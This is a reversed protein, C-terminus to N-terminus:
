RLVEEIPVAMVVTTRIPHTLGLSPLRLLLRMPAKEEGARAVVWEAARPAAALTVTVRRGRDSLEIRTVEGVTVRQASLERGDRSLLKPPANAATQAILFWADQNAPLGFVELARAFAVAGAAKVPQPSEGLTVTAGGVTVAYRFAPTGRADFFYGLWRLDGSSRSPQGNWDAAAGRASFAWPFGAPSQWFRKGLPQSNAGGRGAWAGATNLFDGWWAYALRANEADFAFHLHDPYGIALARAGADPLFTRLVVPREKVQVIYSGEEPFGDPSPAARGLSLYNWILAIQADPNGGAVSQIPSVGGAFFQPMRTGPAIRQPDHMWRVFWDRRIREQARTLDPGRAGYGKHPGFDHCQICKFGGQAGGGVLQRGLEIHEPQFVAEAEGAEWAEGDAAVFADHLAGVNQAGFQPMRLTMWPRARANRTLAAAIADPKLKGGIGTLPPPSIAEVDSGEEEGTAVGSLRSLVAFNEQSLGGRGHRSHCDLCRFRELALMLEHTPAPAGAGDAAALFARIDARQAETLAFRPAPAAPRAALCGRDAKQPDRIADFAPARLRSPVSKRAQTLSHCNLCGMTELLERGQELAAEDAPPLPQASAPIRSQCLYQALSVADEDNLAMAPMRATPDSAHPNRLYQALREWSWKAGMGALPVRGRAVGQEDGVGHCLFCGLSNFLSHGREIRQPPSIDQNVNFKPGPGGKLSALFQAIAARQQAAADDGGFMAPMLAGQRIQQPDALWAAFWDAHVRSGIHTLDPAKRSALRAALKNEGAEHCSVCNFEEVWFQGRAVAEHQALAPPRQAPVHSLFRAPLPEALFGPGEWWVQARAPGNVLPATRFEARLPHTGATLEMPEGRQLPGPTAVNASLVLKGGIELRLAGVVNASFRYKGGELVTLSGDWRASFNRGHLRPHPSDGARLHFSLMPEVRTVERGAEDRYTAVLGAPRQAEQALLVFPAALVVLAAIRKM